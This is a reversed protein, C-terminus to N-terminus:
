LDKLRDLRAWENRVIKPMMKKLRRLQRRCAEPDDGCCTRARRCPNAACFRFSGLLDCQAGNLMLAFRSKCCLGVSLQWPPRHNTRFSLAM